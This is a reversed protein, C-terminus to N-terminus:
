FNLVFGRSGFYGTSKVVLVRWGRFIMFLYISLINFWYIFLYIIKCVKCVVLEGGGYRDVNEKM